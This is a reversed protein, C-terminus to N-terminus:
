FLFATREFCWFAALSGMAYAPAQVMWDPALAALRRMSRQAAWVAAVFLLQGFEIGANFSFLALPIEGSPLGAEALAGAFGLGHLLGFLLAMAWPRRGMPGLGAARPGGSLEVALVLISAAIAVEIPATPFRVLGLAALSLTVSHGVTFATVTAILARPSAVLLVLGLVFLLHDLGSLIHQLGFDLYRVLVDGARQREPVVLADDGGSLVARATRGDALEVRVLASSASRDLGRVHLTQGVLGSAGCQEVWRLVASTAGRELKPEGRPACGPPLEPRLEVGAPQLLSQKWLVEVTGSDRERLDLLSPALLHAEAPPASALLAALSLLSARVM